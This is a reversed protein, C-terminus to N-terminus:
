YRSAHGGNGRWRAEVLMSHSVRAALAPACRLLWRVPRSEVLPQLCQLRPPLIPVWHLMIADFGSEGLAARLTEATEYRLHLPKGALHRRHIGISNPICRANLADIWLTGAPKMARAIAQLVPETAAVAQLVGFCLVGDISGERIPLLTADGTVWSIGPASRARAKLLTPLSYDIGIVSLGEEALFRTYTGAGCGIDLWLANRRAGVWLRCFSRFRTILGSTTWGAISADDDFYTARHEFDSKWRAQFDDPPRANSRNRQM